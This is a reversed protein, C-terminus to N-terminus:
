LSHASIFPACLAAQGLVCTMIGDLDGTMEEYSLQPFLKM